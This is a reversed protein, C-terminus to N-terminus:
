FLLSSLLYVFLLGEIKIMVFLLSERLDVYALYPTLNVFDKNFLVILEKINIM